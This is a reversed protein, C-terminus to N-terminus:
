QCFTSRSEIGVEKILDTYYTPDEYAEGVILLHYDPHGEAFYKMAKILKDLGKYRRILGFFLVVKEATIGLMERAQTKTYRKLDFCEFVSLTTKHIPKNKHNEAIASRVYNSQCIFSDALDLTRQSMWKDFWRNEHSIYNEVLFSISAQSKKKIQKAIYGYAPGFFPMWWVFIVLDPKLSLIKKAAKSWTLPNVSNILRHIKEKHPFFITESTDYQTTGPFFIKPYLLSFSITQVEFDMQTLTDYMHAEVLSQGGRYPQAPGVIVIKKKLATCLYELGM